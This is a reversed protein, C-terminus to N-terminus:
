KKDEVRPPIPPPSRNFKNLPSSHHKKKKEERSQDPYIYIPTFEESSSLELSERNPISDMNDTGKVTHPPLEKTSLVPQEYIHLSEDSSYLELSERNPGANLNETQCPACPGKPSVMQKTPKNIDTYEPQEVSQREIGNLISYFYITGQRDVNPQFNYNYYSPNEVGSPQKTSNCLSTSPSIIQCSWLM